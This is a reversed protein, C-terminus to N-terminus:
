RICGTTASRWWAPRQGGSPPAIGSLLCPLLRPLVLGFTCPSTTIRRLHPRRRLHRASPAM